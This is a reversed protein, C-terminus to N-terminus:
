VLALNLEILASLESGASGTLRGRLAAQASILIGIVIM